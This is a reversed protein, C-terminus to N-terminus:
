DAAPPTTLLLTHIRCTAVDLLTWITAGSGSITLPHCPKVTVGPALGSLDNVSFIRNAQLSEATVATVAIPVDQLSQERKQATVVIEGLRNSDDDTETTTQAQAQSAFVAMGATTAMLVFKRM